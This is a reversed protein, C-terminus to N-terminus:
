RDTPTKGLLDVVMPRSEAPLEDSKTRYAESIELWFELGPDLIPKRNTWSRVRYIGDASLEIAQVADSAPSSGASASRRVVQLRTGPAVDGDADIVDFPMRRFEYSVISNANWSLSFPFACKIVQTSRLVSPDKRDGDTAITASLSPEHRKVPFPGAKAAAGHAAVFEDLQNESFPERLRERDPELRLGYVLVKGLWPFARQRAHGIGDPNGFRAHCVFAVGPEKVRIVEQPFWRDLDDAWVFVHPFLESHPLQGVILHRHDYINEHLNLLIKSMPPTLVAPPSPVPASATAARLESVQDIEKKLLHCVTSIDRPNDRTQAARSDRFRARLSSWKMRAMGTGQAFDLFARLDVIRANVGEPSDTIGRFRSLVHDDIRKPLTKLVAGVTTENFAELKLGDGNLCHATTVLEVFAARADVRATPTIVRDTGVAVAPFIDSVEPSLFTM